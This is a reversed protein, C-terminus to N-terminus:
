RGSKQRKSPGQTRKAEDAHKELERWKKQLWSVKKPEEPAQVPPPVRKPGSATKPAASTPVSPSKPEEKTPMEALHKRIRWQELIGFLNSAMIYLNLGSPASYLFLVFFISMFMMMKRQQELQDPTSSSQAGPSGRPMFRAQLVQSIGLLIPLLNFSTIPGTLYQSIIPIMLPRSLTVLADPGALDRIWWGDFPAHRMEVTSYLAAWLAAWIPVQLFMPLCSLFNSAPNLGADKYIDMIEQNLKMKDNGYKEKAAQIRPQLSSMQRQMRFMNVQSKKTIPHLLARVVLVLVIIALGYNHPPIKHLTDLLRMMFRSLGAPACMYFFATITAIYGRDEYRAVSDFISKSKPGLYCDFAVEAGAGPEITVPKMVFEFTMDEGYVQGAANTEIETLHLADVQRVLGGAETEKEGGVPTVICAFYRNAVAAWTVQAEEGETPWSLRGSSQKMLNKRDTNKVDQAGEDLLSALMLREEHRLDEGKIGIAGRQVVIADFKGETLNEIRLGLRMDYTRGGPDESYPQKPIAFTKTVRALPRGGEPDQVEVSLEVAEEGEVRRAKWVVEALDAQIRREGVVFTLQPTVFSGLSRDGEGRVPEFLTYPVHDKVTAHYDRVHATGVAGGRPLVTMAIPYPSGDEADGITLPTTDDGGVVFRGEAPTAGAATGGGGAPRTAVAGDGPQTAGPQTSSPQTASQDTTESGPKRPFIYGSIMLWVYFVAVSALLATIM